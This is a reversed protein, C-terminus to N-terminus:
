QAASRLATVQKRVDPPLFRMERRTLRRAAERCKPCDHGILVKDDLDFFAILTDGVRAECRGCSVEGFFVSVIPPHGDIACAVRRKQEITLVEAAASM